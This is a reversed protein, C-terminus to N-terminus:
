DFLIILYLHQLRIQSFLDDEEEIRPNRRSASFSIRRDADGASICPANRSVGAITAAPTKHHSFAVKKEASTEVSRVDSEPVVRITIFYCDGDGM